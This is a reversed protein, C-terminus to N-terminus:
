TECPDKPKGDITCVVKSQDKDKDGEARPVLSELSVCEFGNLRKLHNLMRHAETLRLVGEIIKKEIAGMIVPNLTDNM